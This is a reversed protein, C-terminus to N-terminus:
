SEKEEHELFMPYKDVLWTVMATIIHLISYTPRTDVFPMEMKERKLKKIDKPALTGKKCKEYPKRTKKPSKQTYNVVVTPM